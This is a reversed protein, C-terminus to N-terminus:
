GSTNAAAAGSAPQAKLESARMLTAPEAHALLPLFLLTVLFKM